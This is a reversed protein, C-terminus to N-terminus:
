DDDRDRGRVRPEVLTSASAEDVIQGDVTVTVLWNVTEAVKTDDLKARWKFEFEEDAGAALDTFEASFESGDSGTVLVSGTAEDVGANAIVVELETKTRDTITAPFNIEAITVATEPPAEVATSTSTKTVNTATGTNADVYTLTVEEGVPINSFAEDLSLAFVGRNEGQEILTIYASLGTSSEVTVDVTEAVLPDTNLDADGVRATLLSGVVFEPNPDLLVVADSSSFILSPSPEVGVYGPAPANSTDKTPTIRITFTTGPFTSVDGVTVLYSLGVNVLDDIEGSTFALNEGMAIIDADSIQGFPTPDTATGQSGSMWSFGGIVPNYGYWAMLEADTEPNGDDDFFVGTPLMNDALWPGFQNSVAAGAPVEAYDSGLTETATLTDTLPQPGDVYENIVFGARTDPDFYGIVDRKPDAGFLGVSFVALQDPAWIESPVSLNLNALDVGAESTSQFGTGIGFGVQISFGELRGDTWNNIKQFIQYDRSGAEAEVNFVLDISESGVGDVSEPLM